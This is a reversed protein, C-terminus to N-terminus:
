SIKDVSELVKQVSLERLCRGQHPCPPFAFRSYCPRCPVPEVVVEHAVGEGYPGYVREDVPGYLSVTRVGLSHAFHLLGGDNCLLLRTRRLLALLAEFPEGCAVAYPSRLAGRIKDLLAKESADGLLLIGGGSASAWRDAAQAFKEPGWQKYVANPGWSQGGGPAVAMWVRARADELLVEARREGEPGVRWRLVAPVSAAGVGASKLLGMQTEVVPGNEYGEFRRRRNLFAGRNKYDFGHREPIGAMFGLFGFERGLSYDFLADYREARWAAILDRYAGLFSIPNKSRLRRLRDRDFTYVRGLDANLAALGATRENALFDVRAGPRANKFAAAAYFSFIADGIGFPNVFLVKKM